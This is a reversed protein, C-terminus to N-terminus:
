KKMQNLFAEFSQLDEKFIIVRDTSIFVVSPVYQINLTNRLKSISSNTEADETNVYYIPIGRKKGELELEPVFERCFSCTRRGFYLLYDGDYLNNYNELRKDSVLHFNKVTDDYKNFSVKKSIKNYVPFIISVFVFLSLVTFFIRFYKKKM